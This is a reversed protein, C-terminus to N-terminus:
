RKTQSAEQIFHGGHMIDLACMYICTHFAHIGASHLCTVPRHKQVQVDAAQLSSVANQAKYRIMRPSACAHMYCNVKIEMAHMHLSSDVEQGRPICLSFFQYVAQEVMAQSPRLGLKDM